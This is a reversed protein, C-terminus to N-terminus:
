AGGLRVDRRYFLLVSLGLITASFLLNEAVITMHLTWDINILEEMFGAGILDRPPSSPRIWFVAEGLFDLVASESGRGQGLLWFVVPVVFGLVPRIHLGLAVALSVSFTVDSMRQLIGLYFQPLPTEGLAALGVLLLVAASLLMGWVIGLIGLTKGVAFELRSIPRALLAVVTRQRREVPFAYLGLVFGILGTVWVISTYMSVAVNGYLVTPDTEGAEAAADVMLMATFLQVGVLLGVLLLFTVVTAPRAAGRATNLAITLIPRM